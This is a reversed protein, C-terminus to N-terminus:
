TQPQKKVAAQTAQQHTQWTSRQRFDRDQLSYSKAVRVLTEINVYLWVHRVIEHQTKCAAAHQPRESRLIDYLQLNILEVDVWTMTQM